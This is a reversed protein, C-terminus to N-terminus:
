FKPVNKRSIEKKKFAAWKLDNVQEQAFYDKIIKLEGESLEVHFITEHFWDIPLFIRSM